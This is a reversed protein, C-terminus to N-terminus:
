PQLHYGTRSQWVRDAEGVRVVIRRYRETGSMNRPMYSLSYSAGLERGIQEYLPVVDNLKEPFFVRGGSQDALQEMRQRVQVLFDHPIPSGPFIRKLMLYDNGEENESELNLDTNIAVFYVPMKSQQVNRLTKEFARDEPSDPVRNLTLTQRYLGTDRGDSFVIVAKRGKVGRFQKRVARDVSSYFATEGVAKPSVVCM